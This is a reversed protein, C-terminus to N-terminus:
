SLCIADLKKPQRSTVVDSEWGAPDVVGGDPLRIAVRAFLRGCAIAGRRPSESDRIEAM